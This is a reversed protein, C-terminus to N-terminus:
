YSYAYVINEDRGFTIGSHLECSDTVKAWIASTVTLPDFAFVQNGSCSGLIQDYKSLVYATPSSGSSIIISKIM